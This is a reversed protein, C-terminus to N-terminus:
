KEGVLEVELCYSFLFQVLAFVSSMIKFEFRLYLYLIFIRCTRQFIYLIDGLHSSIHFINGLGLGYASPASIYEMNGRM